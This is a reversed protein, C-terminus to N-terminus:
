WYDQCLFFSLPMYNGISGTTITVIVYTYRKEWSKRTLAIIGFEHSSFTGPRTVLGFQKTLKKCYPDTNFIHKVISTHTFRHGPLKEGLM